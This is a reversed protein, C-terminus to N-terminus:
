LLVVKNCLVQVLLSVGVCNVVIFHMGKGIHKAVGLSCIVEVLHPAHNGVIIKRMEDRIREASIGQLGAATSRIAELTDVDHQDVEPVIRGYFRFYRLIRLYDEKIRKVPDGVFLVKREKLHREGDFYDYLTGDFDLSMANITLDRREADVLWDTTFDVVAHRGDTERDIRLTTIEFDTSNVHATITGHKLGTPIYRVNEQVFIEVMNNPTCETALDIDKPKSGLLLDRVVGGVLRLQYGHKHFITGLKRLEPTLLEQFHEGSVKRSVMPSGQFNGTSYKSITIRLSALTFRLSSLRSLSEM